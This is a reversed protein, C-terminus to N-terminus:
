VAGGAAAAGGFGADGFGHGLAEVEVGVAAVGDGHGLAEGREVDDEFVVDLGSGLVDAGVEEFAEAVELFAVFDDAIDSAAAEHEAHFDDFVAGGFGGGAGLAGDDEFFAAFESDQDALAAEEAVDQADLRRHTHGLFIAVEYAAHQILCEALGSGSTPPVPGSSQTSWHTCDFKSAESGPRKLPRARKYAVAEATTLLRWFVAARKLPRGQVPKLGRGLSMSGNQAPMGVERGIVEFCRAFIRFRTVPLGYRPSSIGCSLRRSGAETGIPWGYSWSALLLRQSFLGVSWSM